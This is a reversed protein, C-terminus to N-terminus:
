ESVKSIYMWLNGFGDGCDTGFLEFQADGIIISPKEGDKAAEINDELWSRAQTTDSAEYPMTSCFGLYLKGIDTFEDSTANNNTVGFSASIIQYESDMTLSYDYTVGLSADQYDTASTYAFVDRADEPASAISAEELGFQVLGMRIDTGHSGLIGREDITEEQNQSAPLESEIQAPERSESTPTDASCGGLISLLMALVLVAGFRKM